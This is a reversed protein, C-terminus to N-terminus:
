DMNEYEMVIEGLRVELAPYSQKWLFPVMSPSKVLYRMIHALSDHAADVYLENYSLSALDYLRGACIIDIMALADTDGTDGSRLIREYYSPLVTRHSEASLAELVAGVMEARNKVTTPVELSSVSDRSGAYYEQQNADAKPFPLIGFSVDSAHLADDELASLSVMAMLATGQSFKTIAATTTPMLFGDSLSLRNLATIIDTFDAFPTIEPTNEGDNTIYHIGCAASAVNIWWQGSSLLGYTDAEDRSGVTGATRSDFYFDKVIGGVADLTWAGKRVMDYLSEYGLGSAINYEKEMDKNFLYAGASQIASLNIDSIGVFQRGYVTFASNIGENWWDTQGISDRVYPLESRLDLFCDSDIVSGTMWIQLMAVDYSINNGDATMGIYEHPTASDGVAMYETEIHINFRNELRRNRQEIQVDCDDPEEEEAYIEYAYGSLVSFTVTEGGFNHSGVRDLYGTDTGDDGDPTQGDPTQGGPTTGPTAGFTSGPTQSGPCAAFCLVSALLLFLALLKKM